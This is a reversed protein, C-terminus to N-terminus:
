DNVEGELWPRLEKRLAESAASKRSAVTGHPCGLVEAIEQYTMGDFESLVFVVRQTEPLRLLALDLAEHLAGAFASAECTSAAPVDDDIRVHNWNKNARVYDICASRVIRLLYATVAGQPTYRDRSQWLRILTDQVIDGAADRDGVMRYAFRYLREQHNKVVHAFANKDGQMARIMFDDDL